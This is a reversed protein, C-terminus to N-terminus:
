LITLKRIAQFKKIYDITERPFIPKKMDFQTSIWALGYKNISKTVRVPGGNYAAALMEETIGLEEPIKNEEVGADIRKKHIDFFLVMAKVANVHDAMGLVYSKLLHAEPYQTEMSKYTSQIFQAMGSAGAKSGTYRYTDNQNLGITAYVREALDKGGDDALAFTKPDIHEILLISKILDKSINQTIPTNIQYHSRVNDQNLQVYAYNIQQDLYTKGVAVIDPTQLAKSFPVYIIDTYRRASKEPLGEVYESLLPYKNAIVLAKPNGPATYISNFSNWWVVEIPIIADLSSAPALDLVRTKAYNKIQDEQVWFREEAIEGTTTNLVALAIQKRLITPVVKKNKTPKEEVALPASQRLIEKAQRIKDQLNIQPGIVLEAKSEPSAQNAVKIEQADSFHMLLTVGMLAVCAVSIITTRYNMFRM